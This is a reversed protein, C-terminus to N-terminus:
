GGIAGGEQLTLSLPVGRGVYDSMQYVNLKTGVQIVGGQAAFDAASDALPYFFRPEEVFQSRLVADGYVLEVTYMERMEAVPIEGGPSTLEQGLRSRRRWSYVNGEVTLQHSPQVPSYPRKTEGSCVFVVPLVNAEDMGNAVLKYLIGYQIDRSQLPLFTAAAPLMVAEGATHGATRHETGKRGRLLKSLRYTGPAILQADAYQVVEDGIVIANFGALVESEPRSQLALRNLRVDVSNEEDWATSPGAGLASLAEGVGGERLTVLYGYTAGGDRSALLHAFRWGSGGTASVYLGFKDHEDQLAPLNKFVATTIGGVAIEGSDGTEGQNGSRSSQFVSEDYSNAAIEVGFDAGITVRRAQLAHVIGNQEVTGTDGPAIAMWKPGTKVTYSNRNVWDWYLLRDAVRAAQDAPIAVGTEVTETRNASGYQRVAVQANTNFDKNPDIHKLYLRRPLDLEKKRKWTLSATEGENKEGYGLEGSLVQFTKAPRQWPFFVLTGGYQRWTVGAIKCIKALASLYNDTGTAFGSVTGPVETVDIDGGLGADACLDRLIASVAIPASAYGTGTYEGNQIVEFNFSPIRNGWNELNFDNFIVYAVNRYAPTRGVGLHSQLLSSPPQDNTGLFGTISSSLAISAEKTAASANDSLNYILKNDAWIKSIAAIPGQCVALAFSASYWYETYSSGGGGGGKGGGSSTTRTHEALDSSWIINGPLRYTGWVRPIPSGYSSGSIQLDNMRPGYQETRKNMGFVQQDILGGAIGAIQLALTSTVGMSSAIMPLLITAM